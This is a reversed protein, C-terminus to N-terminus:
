SSRPRLLRDLQEFGHEALREWAKGYITKQKTSLKWSLPPQLWENEWDSEKLTFELTTTTMRPVKRQVLRAEMHGREQQSTSRVQMMANLPAVMANFFASNLFTPLQNQSPKPSGHSIRILVVSEIEPTSDILEEVWGIATVIGENDVYGGDVVHWLGESLPKEPIAAPSVYPFSASLRVATAVDIDKDPNQTLFDIPRCAPPVGDKDAIKATSFVVRRGTEVETANFAVAPL